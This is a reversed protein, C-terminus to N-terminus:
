KVIMGFWPKKTNIALMEYAEEETEYEVLSGELGAVGESIIWAMIATQNAPVYITASGNKNNKWVTQKM